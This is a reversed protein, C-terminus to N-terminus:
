NRELYDPQAVVAVIKLKESPRIVIDKIETNCKLCVAFNIVLKIPEPIRLRNIRDSYHPEIYKTLDNFSEFKMYGGCFPCKVYGGFGTVLHLKLVAREESM